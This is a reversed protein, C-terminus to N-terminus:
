GELITKPGSIRPPPIAPNSGTSPNTTNSSPPTTTPQPTAITNGAVLPNAQNVYDQVRKLAEGTKIDDKSIRDLNPIILPM